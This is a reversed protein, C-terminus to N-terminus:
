FIVLKDQNPLDLTCNLLSISYHCDCGQCTYRHELKSGIMLLLTVKMFLLTHIAELSSAM